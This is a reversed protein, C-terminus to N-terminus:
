TILYGIFLKIDMFYDCHNGTTLVSYHSFWSLAAVGFDLSYTGLPCSLLGYACADM